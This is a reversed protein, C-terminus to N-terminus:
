VWILPSGHGDLRSFAQVIGILREMLEEPVGSIAMPIPHGQSKAVIAECECVEIRPTGSQGIGKGPKAKAQALPGHESRAVTGLPEHALV